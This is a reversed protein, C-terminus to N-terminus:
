WLEGQFWKHSLLQDQYKIMFKEETLNFYNNLVDYEFEIIDRDLHTHVGAIHSTKKIRTHHLSDLPLPEQEFVDLYAVMRSRNLYELLDSEKVFGGRAPNILVSPSLKTLLDKNIIHKSSSNLSASLIVTEVKQNMETLNKYDAKARPDVTITKVGISHLMAQIKVGIHGMGIILASTENMLTRPYLRSVDWNKQEPRQTWYEVFCSLTYEAVAQARIQHGIILPIKKLLSTASAFNEYGSNPHIILSANEKMVSPLNEFKTHTNTILILESNQDWEDISDLYKVPLNELCNKELDKFGSLQYPSLHTRLISYRKM